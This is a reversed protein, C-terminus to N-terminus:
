SCCCTRHQLYYSSSIPLPSLSNIRSRNPLSPPPSPQHRHHPQYELAAVTNSPLFSEEPECYHFNRHCSCAACKLSTPVASNATSSPMFEGCGDVAHGGMTAAHEQSM